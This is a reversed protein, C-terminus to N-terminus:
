LLGRLYGCSVLADPKQRQQSLAEVLLTINKRQQITVGVPDVLNEKGNIVQVEVEARGGNVGREDALLDGKGVAEM